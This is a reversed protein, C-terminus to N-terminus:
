EIKEKSSEDSRGARTWGLEGSGGGDREAEEREIREVAERVEEFGMALDLVRSEVARLAQMMEEVDAVSPQRNTRLLEDRWSSLQGAARLGLGLPAFMAALTARSTVIRDLWAVAGDEFAKWLNAPGAGKKGVRQLWASFGDRGADWLVTVLRKSFDTARRAQKQVGSPELRESM